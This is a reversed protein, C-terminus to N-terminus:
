IFTSTIFRSFFTERNYMCVYEDLIIILTVKPGKVNEPHEKIWHPALKTHLDRLIQDKIGTSVSVVSLFQSPNERENSAPAAVGMMFSKIMGTYKNQGYYGGLIILDIDQVLNDSYQLITDQIYVKPNQANDYTSLHIRKPQFNCFLILITLKELGM